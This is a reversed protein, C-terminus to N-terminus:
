YEDYTKIGCQMKCVNRTQKKGQLEFDIDGNHALQTIHRQVAITYPSIGHYRCVFVVCDVSMLLQRRCTHAPRHIYVYTWMCLFSFSVLLQTNHYMVVPPMPLNGSKIDIQGRTSIYLEKKNIQKNTSFLLLYERPQVCLVTYMCAVFSSALQTQIFLDPSSVILSHSLSIHKISGWM